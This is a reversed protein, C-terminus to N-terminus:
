ESGGQHRRESEPFSWEPCRKLTGLPRMQKGSAANDTVCSPTLRARSGIERLGPRPGGNGVRGEMSRANFCGRRGWRAVRLFAGKLAEEM